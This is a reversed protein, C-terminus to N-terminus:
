QPAKRSRPDFGLGDNLDRGTQKVLSEYANRWYTADSRYATANAAKSIADAVVSLMIAIIICGALPSM